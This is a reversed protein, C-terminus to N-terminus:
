QFGVSVAEQMVFRVRSSVFGKVVCPFFLPDSCSIVLQQFQRSVGRWAIAGENRFSRRRLDLALKRVSFDVSLLLRLLPVTGM